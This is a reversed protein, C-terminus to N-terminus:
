YKLRMSASGIPIPLLFSGLLGKTYPHLPNAFLRDSPVAEEVIEGLYMVALANCMYELLALDHSIILYTLDFSRKLKILLGIIQAQVSVDLASFPEDCVILKPHTVM